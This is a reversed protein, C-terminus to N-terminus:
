TTFQPPKPKSPDSFAVAFGDKTHRVVVAASKGFFLSEGVSPRVSAKFAIGSLAIDIIECDNTEGSDLVFQRRMAGVAIRVHTRTPTTRSSGFELYTAIKEAVRARMAESYKFQVGVHIRNHRVLTGEYRGLGQVLLVVQTGLAASCSSKLGAGDPSLDLVLCKEEYNEEPFFLTGQVEIRARRQTRRDNSLDFWSHQRLLAM